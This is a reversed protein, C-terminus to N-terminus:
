GFFNKMKGILKKIYFSFQIEEIEGKINATCSVMQSLDDVFDGMEPIYGQIYEVGQQIDVADQLAQRLSERVTDQLTLRNETCDKYQSKDIFRAGIYVCFVMLILIFVRQYIIKMFFVTWVSNIETHVTM